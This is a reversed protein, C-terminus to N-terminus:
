FEEKIFWIRRGSYDTMSSLKKRRVKTISKARFTEDSKQSIQQLLM